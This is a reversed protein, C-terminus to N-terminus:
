RGPCRCTRPRADVAARVAATPVVVVVAKPPLKSQTKGSPRAVLTTETWTLSESLAGAVRRGLRDGDVVDGRRYGTPTWRGGTLSPVVVVGVREGDGVRAGVRERDDADVAARVAALRARGGSRRPRCSRSSKGSPGAVLTTETWTLSESLACLLVGVWDTVTLLTAGVTVRDADLSRETM